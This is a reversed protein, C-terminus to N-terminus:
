VGVVFKEASAGKEELERLGNSIGQGFNDLGKFIKLSGIPKLLGKEFLRSTYRVFGAGFETNEHFTKISVADIVLRSATNISGLDPTGVICVLRKEGSGNEALLKALVTATSKSIMDIGYRVGEPCSESVQEVIREEPQLRDIVHTAGLEKLYSANKKSSIAVIKDFKGSARALQIVFIGVSSSGGWIVLSGLKEAGGGGSGHDEPEFAVLNSLACGATVLGVGIGAAFDLGFQRGPAGGPASGPASSGAETQPVRWALRSDVVTYEQFTSTRLDRYSTSALFVETGPAFMSRDVKAGCKVVVGSSERGNIWPFSYINFKYKKSKWDVHNLGIFVNKVLVEYDKLSQTVKIDSVLALEGEFSSVVLGKQLSPVSNELGHVSVHKGTKHRKVEEHVGTSTEELLNCYTNIKRKLM